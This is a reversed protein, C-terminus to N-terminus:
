DLILKLWLGGPVLRLGLVGTDLGVRLRVRTGPGLVVYTSAPSHGGTHLSECVSSGVCDWHICIWV